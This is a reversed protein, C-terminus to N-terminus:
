SFMTHYLTLTESDWYCVGVWFYVFYGKRWSKYRVRDSVSTSIDTFVYSSESFHALDKNEEVVEEIEQREEMVPPM